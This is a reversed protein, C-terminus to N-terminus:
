DPLRSYLLISEVFPSGLRTMLEVCFLAHSQTQKATYDKHVYLSSIRPPQNEDDVKGLALRPVLDTQYVFDTLVKEYETKNLLPANPNAASILISQLVGKPSFGLEAYVRDSDFPKLGFFDMPLMACLVTQNAKDIADKAEFHHEKLFGRLSKLSSKGLLFEGFRPYGHAKLFAKARAKSNLNELTTHKLSASTTSRQEETVLRWHANVYRTSRHPESKSAHRTKRSTGIARTLTSDLRSSKHVLDVYSLVGNDFGLTVARVASGFCEALSDQRADILVRGQHAGFSTLEIRPREPDHKDESYISPLVPPEMNKFCASPLEQLTSKGFTLGLLKVGHATRQAKLPM